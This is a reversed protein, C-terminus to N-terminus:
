NLAAWVLFAEQEVYDGIFAIADVDVFQIVKMAVRMHNAIRNM